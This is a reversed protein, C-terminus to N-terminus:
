INIEKLYDEIHASLYAGGFDETSNLIINCESIVKSEKESFKEANIKNILYYRKKILNNIFELNCNNKLILEFEEILFFFLEKIYKKIKETIKKMEMVRESTHRIKDILKNITIFLSFIRNKKDENFDSFNLQRLYYNVFKTINDHYDYVKQHFEYFNDNMASLFENLLEKILFFIRSQVVGIKEYKEKQILTQLVIQHNTNSIIELGIYRGLHKKVYKDIDIEKNEKYNFIKNRKFKLIIEGIGTIYCEELFRNLMLHNLNELDMFARKLNNNNEKNKFLILSDEKEEVDIEQGKKINQEKVWKSPLSIMLTSPGQKIIKRKM